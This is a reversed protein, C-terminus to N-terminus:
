IGLTTLKRNDLPEWKPDDCLSLRHEYQNVADRVGKLTIVDEKNIKVSQVLQSWSLGTKKRWYWKRDRKINSITDPSGVSKKYENLKKVIERDETEPNIVIAQEYPDLYFTEGYYQSERLDIFRPKTDLDRDRVEGCFIASLIIKCFAKSVKHRIRMFEALNPWDFMVAFAKGYKGPRTDFVMRYPNKPDAHLAWYPILKKLELDRRIFEVDRMFQDRDVLLAVRCFKWNDRAKIKISRISM